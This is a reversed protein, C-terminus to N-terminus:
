INAFVQVPSSKVTEMEYGLPSLEPNLLSGLAAPGPPLLTLIQVWRVGERRGPECGEVRARPVEWGAQAWGQPRCGRGHGATSWGGCGPLPLQESLPKDPPAGPSVAPLKQQRRDPFWAECIPLSAAVKFM